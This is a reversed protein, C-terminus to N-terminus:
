ERADPPTDTSFELITFCQPAHNDISGIRDWAWGAHVDNGLINLKEYRAFQVRWEDGAQPPVSRGYALPGMGAWPFALEVTWGRDVDTPDNLTGDIQVATRLGPFDWDTFAWRAGRPHAGRWMHLGARDFNGGFSVARGSFLDFEPVDFRSGRTYADQWILFVEYVTGLANMEFEYYCDGGDIFVEIDNEYFILSDRETFHAEVNPEELWFAIYLAEDDWLAAARTDLFAPRGTVVDVFRRSRPARRWVPQSM